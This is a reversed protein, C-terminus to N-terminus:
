GATAAAPSTAVKAPIPAPAPRTYNLVTIEKEDKGLAKAVAQHWLRRPRELTVGLLGEDLAFNSRNNNLLEVRKQGLVWARELAAKKQAPTFTFPGKVIKTFNARGADTNMMKIFNHFSPSTLDWKYPQLPNFTQIALGSRGLKDYLGLLEGMLTTYECGTRVFAVREQLKADNGAARKAEDLYTAAKAMIEPTFVNGYNIVLETYGVNFKNRNWAKTVEDELYEYYARVPKAAPGFTSYFEDLLKSTDATPDWLTHTLVYYNPAQTSFHKGTEGYAGIMGSNLGQKITDAIEDTYLIPLDMWYHMGWYERMVIKVGKTKWEDVFAQYKAKEEPIMMQTSYTTMSLIVNDPLKAIRKPPNRSITYAFSGIGLEPRLKKVRQAIDNVFDWYAANQYDEDRTAGPDKAKCLNCECFGGGDNASVSIIDLGQNSPRSLLRKLFEERMEMNSPCLQAPRREGSVLGYWEPHDKFLEEGPMTGHWSHGFVAKFQDGQRSRGAWTALDEKAQPAWYRAYYFDLKRRQVQPAGFENLTPINMRPNQPIVEGSEGPWVWRVGCHKELFLSVAHYFNFTATSKTEGALLLGNPVSRIMWGERPLKEIAAEQDPLVGPGVVFHLGGQPASTSEVVPFKRGAIKELHYQLDTAAKRVVAPSKPAIVIDQYKDLTTDAKACATLSAAFLVVPITSKTFSRM